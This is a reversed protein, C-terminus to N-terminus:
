IETNLLYQMLLNVVKVNISNGLLKYRSKLSIKDPFKFNKDFSMLLQIEEPTFFRM